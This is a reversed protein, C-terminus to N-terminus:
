GEVSIRLQEAAQKDRICALEASKVEGLHALEDDTVYTLIFSLLENIYDSM